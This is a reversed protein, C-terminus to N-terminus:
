KEIKIETIAEFAAQNNPDLRLAQAFSADAQGPSGLAELNKGKLTYVRALWYPEETLLSEAVDLFNTSQQYHTLYHHALALYFYSYPNTSDIAITKEFRNLAKEYEGAEMLLRGEETLRLSAARRPLTEPTIKAILSAQVATQSPTQDVTPTTVERAIEEVTRRTREPEEGVGPTGMAEAPVTQEQVGPIVTFKGPQPSSVWAPSSPPQEGLDEEKIDNRRQLQSEADSSRPTYVQTSLSPHGSSQALVLPSVFLFSSLFLVLSITLTM